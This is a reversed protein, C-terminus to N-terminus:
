DRGGRNQLLLAYNKWNRGGNFIEKKGELDSKDFFQLKRLGEDYLIMADGWAGELGRGNRASGGGVQKMRVEIINLGFGIWYCICSSESLGM